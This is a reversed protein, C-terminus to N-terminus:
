LKLHTAELWVHDGLKYQSPISARTKAMHNIADIAALRKEIIMELQQETAENTSEGTGTPILKTEYGLLIQNPSLKTTANQRNNYIATAISIWDTWAESSMSTVLQLYQEVWQNKRESLGDTQPHFAMSLNQKIGLRQTLAREFHSTFRSDYDSIVKTPLGYWKYVHDM